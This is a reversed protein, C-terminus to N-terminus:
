MNTWQLYYLNIVRRSSALGARHSDSPPSPVWFFWLLLGGLVVVVVSISLWTTLRQNSPIPFFGARPHAVWLAREQFHHLPPPSQARRWRWCWAKGKGVEDELRGWMFDMIELPSKAGVKSSTSSVYLITIESNGECLLSVHFWRRAVIFKDAIRKWRSVSKATVFSRFITRTKQEDGTTRNKRNRWVLQNANM